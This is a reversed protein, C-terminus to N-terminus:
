VPKDRKCISPNLWFHLFINGPGRSRFHLLEHLQSLLLWCGTFRCGYLHPQKKAFLPLSWRRLTWRSGRKRIIFFYSIIDGLSWWFLLLSCRRFTVFCSARWFFTSYLVGIVPSCAGLPWRGRIPINRRCCSFMGYRSCSAFSVRTHRSRRFRRM